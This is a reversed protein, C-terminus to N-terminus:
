TGSLVQEYLKFIERGIINPDHCKKIYALSNESFAKWLRRNELLLGLYKDYDYKTIFGNTGHSVVEGISNISSAVVPIGYSMAEIITLAYADYRTPLLLIDSAPFIKGYLESDLPNSYYIIRRNSMVAKRISPPLVGIYILKIENFDKALKSFVKLVIDGGKRYFDRGIFLINIGNHEIREKKVDIPPPIVKVKSQDVGDDVFGKKAWNSWTIIAKCPSSNLYYVLFEKAAKYTFNSSGYYQKLFQSPSEDNEHVWPRSYLYFNWFFSHILKEDKPRPQSFGKLVLTKIVKFFNKANFEYHSVNNIIGTLGNFISYVIGPPPHKYRLYSGRRLKKTRKDIESVIMVKM